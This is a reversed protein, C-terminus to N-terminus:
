LPKKPNKPHTNRFHSTPLRNPPNKSRAFHNKRQTKKPKGVSFHNQGLTISPIRPTEKTATPNKKAPMPNQRTETPFHGERNHSARM